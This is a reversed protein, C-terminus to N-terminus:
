RSTRKTKENINVVMTIEAILQGKELLKIIRAKVLYNMKLRTYLNMCEIILMTVFANAVVM